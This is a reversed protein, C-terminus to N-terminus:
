CRAYSRGRNKLLEAGFLDAILDLRQQEARHIDSAGDQGTEPTLSEM